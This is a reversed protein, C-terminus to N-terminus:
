GPEWVRGKTRMRSIPFPRTFTLRTGLGERAGARFSPRTNLTPDESIEYHLTVTVFM